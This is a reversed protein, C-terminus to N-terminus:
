RIVKWQTDIQTKMRKVLRTTRKREGGLYRFIWHGNRKKSIIPETIEPVNVEPFEEQNCIGSIEIYDDKDYYETEQDEGVVEYKGLKRKLSEVETTLEEVRAGLLKTWLNNKHEPAVINRVTTAEAPNEVEANIVIEFSKRTHDPLKVIKNLLEVHGEKLEAGIINKIKSQVNDMEYKLITLATDKGNVEDILKSMKVGINKLEKRLTKIKEKAKENAKKLKQLNKTECSSTNGKVKGIKVIPKNSLQKLQEDFWNQKKHMFAQHKENKKQLIKVRLELKKNEIKMMQWEKYSKSVPPIYLSGFEKRKEKLTKLIEQVKKQNVKRFESDEITNSLNGVVEVQKPTKDTIPIKGVEEAFALLKGKRLRVTQSSCNAVRTPILGNHVNAIVRAVLLCGSQNKSSCNSEVLWGEVNDTLSRSVKGQVTIETWPEVVRGRNLFVRRTKTMAEFNELEKVQDKVLLEEKEMDVIAHLSKLAPLGLIGPELMDSAYIQTTITVGKVELNIEVPGWIKVKERNLTYIELSYDKWKTLLVNPFQKSSNLSILTVDAGTDVLFRVIQEGIKGNVYIGKTTKLVETNNVTKQETDTFEYPLPLYKDETFVNEVYSENNNRLANNYSQQENPQYNFKEPKAVKEIENKNHQDINEEKSKNTSKESM